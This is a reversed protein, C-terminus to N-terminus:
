DVYMGLYFARNQPKKGLTSEQSKEGGGLTSPVYSGRSPFLSAIIVGGMFFCVMRTHEEGRM